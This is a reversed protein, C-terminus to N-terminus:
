LFARITGHDILDIQFEYIRAKGTRLFRAMARPGPPCKGGNECVVQM